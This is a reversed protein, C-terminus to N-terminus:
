NSSEIHYSDPVQKPTFLKEAYKHGIDHDFHRIKKLAEHRQFNDTVRKSIKKAIEHLDNNDSHETSQISIQKRLNASESLNDRSLQKEFKIHHHHARNKHVDKATRISAQHPLTM